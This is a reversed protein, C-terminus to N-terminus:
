NKLAYPNEESSAQPFLSELHKNIEDILQDTIYPSIGSVKEVSPTELEQTNIWAAITHNNDCFFVKIPNQRLKEQFFSTNNTDIFYLCNVTRYLLRKIDSDGSLVSVPTNDFISLYLATAVLQEDSNDDQKESRIEGYRESYNIKAGTAYDILKVVRELITYKERDDPIILSKRATKELQQNEFCIDSFLKRNEMGDKIKETAKNIKKRRYSTSTKKRRSREINNITILKDYLLETFEAIEDLKKPVTKVNPHSFFDKAFKSSELAQNLLETDMEYYLRASYVGERFWHTENKISQDTLILSEKLLEELPIEKPEFM